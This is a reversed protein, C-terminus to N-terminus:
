AVVGRRPKVPVRVVQRLVAPARAIRGPVIIREIDPDVPMPEAPGPTAPEDYMPISEPGEPGLPEIDETVDDPLRPGAPPMRPLDAPDIGPETAQPTTAEAPPLIVVNSRADLM